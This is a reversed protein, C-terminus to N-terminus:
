RCFHFSFPQSTATQVLWCSFCASAGAKEVREKAVKAKAKEEMKAKAELDTREKGEAEFCLGRPMPSVVAVAMLVDAGTVSFFKDGAKAKVRIVRETAM